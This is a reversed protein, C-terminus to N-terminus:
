TIHIWKVNYVVRGPALYLGALLWIASIELVPETDCNWVHVGKDQVIALVQFVVCFNKEWLPVEIFEANRIIEYERSNHWQDSRPFGDSGPSINESEVRWIGGKFNSKYFFHFNFWPLPSIEFGRNERGATKLGARINWSRNEFINKLSSPNVTTDPESPNLPKLLVIRFDKWNVLFRVGREPLRRFVKM